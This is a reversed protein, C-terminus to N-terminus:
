PVDGVAEVTARLTVLVFVVRGRGTRARALPGTKAVPRQILGPRASKYNPAVLTEFKTLEHLSIHM